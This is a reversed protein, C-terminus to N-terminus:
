NDLSTIISTLHADLELQSAILAQGHTIAKDYYLLQQNILRLYGGAATLIACPACTDWLHIQRAWCIYLDAENSAVIM